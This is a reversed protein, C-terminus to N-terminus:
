QHCWLQSRTVFCPSTCETRAQAALPLLRTRKICACCAFKSRVCPLQYIHSVETHCQRPALSLALPHVQAQQTDGGGFTALSLKSNIANAESRKAAALKLTNRANQAAVATAQELHNTRQVISRDHHRHSLMSAHQAVIACTALAQGSADLQSQMNVLQSSLNDADQQAQVLQRRVHCPSEFDTHRDSSRRAPWVTNTWPLEDFSPM